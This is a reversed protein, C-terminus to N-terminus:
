NAIKKFFILEDQFEQGMQVTQPKQGCLKFGVAEYLKRATTNSSLCSLFIVRIGAKHAQEIVHTMLQRGIGQGRFEQDVTLNFIEAVHHQKDLFMQNLQVYGILKENNFFGYYGFYNSRHSDLITYKFFSLGQGSEYEYTSLFADPDSQLTRLRLDRYSEVDQNTLLRIQTSM